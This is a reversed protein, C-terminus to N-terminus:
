RELSHNLIPLLRNHRGEMESAFYNENNNEPAPHDKESILEQFRQDTRIPDLDPDAKIWEITTDKNKLAVRLFEFALEKDGCIAYFCARNYTSEDNMKPLAIAIHHNAKNELGMRHYVGALASHALVYDPNKRLVFEFAQVADDHQQEVSFLLGLYYYYVERDPAMEIAKKYAGIADKYRGLSKYLKGLTDWPRDNTPNARTINEYIRVKALIEELDDIGPSINSHGKSKGDRIEDQRITTVSNRIQEPENHSPGENPLNEAMESSDPIVIFSKERPLPSNESDRALPSTNQPISVPSATIAQATIRNPKPSVPPKTEPWDSPPHNEGYDKGDNGPQFGDARAQSKISPDNHIVKKSLAPLLGNTDPVIEETKIMERLDAYDGPQRGANQESLSVGIDLDDAKKYAQIANNIDKLARYANGIKNWVVAQNEPTDMLQVSKQFLSLAHGFEGILYYAHGLNCYPWGSDPTSEIAKIYAAIADEPSGIRLYINGIENWLLADSM